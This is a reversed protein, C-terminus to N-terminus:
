KELLWKWAQKIYITIDNIQITEEEDTTILWGTKVGCAECTKLLAKIERLRTDPNVLSYCAQVPLPLNGEQYLVFDCEYSADKYYYIDMTYLNGYRRYLEWFVLNEFLLGTNGASLTTIANILGNDIFYAKKDSLERKALSFDFKAIRKFFYGAEAMDALDYLLQNGIKYGQTRLENSIKRLSLTKGVSAAVRALLYRLPYFQSVQYREVVDRFIMTNYYNQLISRALNHSLTAVEPFGGCVLYKDFAAQVRAKGLGATLPKIQNFDLYESFRLPLIEIPFGRGRLATALETALMKSNSGTIAIHTGPTDHLRRVFKEWNPANQVEDLFFYTESFPVEPFLRARTQLLDDLTVQSWLLREDELNVHVIHSEPLGSALLNNIEGALLSSKGSRRPGIVVMVKRGVWELTQSRPLIGKDVALPSSLMDYFGSNM